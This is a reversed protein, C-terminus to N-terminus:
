RGQDDRRPGGERVREQFRELLTTRPAPRDERRRPLHGHAGTEEHPEQYGHEHDVREHRLHPKVPGFVTPPEGAPGAVAAPDNSDNPM